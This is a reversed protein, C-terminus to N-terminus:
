LAGTLSMLLLLHVTLLYALFLYRSRARGTLLRSFYLSRGRLWRRCAVAGGKVQRALLPRSLAAWDEELDMEISVDRLGDRSGLSQADEMLRLREELTERRTREETLNQELELLREATESDNSREQPAGPAEEAFVAGQLGDVQTQVRDELWHCRDEADRLSQSVLRLRAAAGGKEEEAQQVKLGLRQLQQDRQQIEHRCRRLDGHLRTREAAGPGELLADTEEEESRLATAGQHGLGPAGSPKQRTEAGGGRGTSEGTERRAAALEGVLRERDSQLSAMAGCFAALQTALADRELALREGDGEKAALEGSLEGLLRSLEAPAADGSRSAALTRALVDREKAAAALDAAADRRGREAASLAARAARLENDYGSRLVKFDEILRDRDDQLAAMAGCMSEGRARAGSSEAAAAAAAERLDAMVKGEAAREQRLTAADAELRSVQARLAGSAEGEKGLEELGVGRQRRLKLGEHGTQAETVRVESALRERDSQLSAMASKLAEREQASRGAQTRLSRLVDELGRREGDAKERQDRRDAQLQELYGSTQGDRCSLLSSIDADKGRLLAKLQLAVGEQEARDNLSRLRLLRADAAASAEEAQRLALQTRSAAGEREALLRTLASKDRELRQALAGLERLRVASLEANGASLLFLQGQQAAAGTRELAGAERDRLRPDELLRQLVPGIQLEQADSRRREELGGLQQEGIAASCQPIDHDEAKNGEQWADLALQEPEAEVRRTREAAQQLLEKHALLEAEGEEESSRKLERESHQRGEEELDLILEQYRICNRQLHSVEQQKERLLEQLEKKASKSADSGRQVTKLKEELERVLQLREAEQERRVRAGAERSAALQSSLQTNHAQLAAASASLEHIRESSRRIVSELHEKEVKAKDSAERADQLEEQLLCEDDESVRLTEKLGVGEVVEQLGELEEDKRGLQLEHDNHMTELREKQFLGELETTHAHSRATPSSSPQMHTSHTDSRRREEELAPRAEELEGALRNHQTERESEAEWRQDGDSPKLKEQLETLEKRTKRNEEELEEVKQRKEKSFKHMREKIRGSEDEAERRAEESLQRMKDMESSVNESRSSSGRTGAEARRAGGELHVARGGPVARREGAGREAAGAGAGVGGSRPERSRQHRTADGATRSRRQPHRKGEPAGEQVGASGSAEQDAPRSRIEEERRCEAAGSCVGAGGDRVSSGSLAALRRGEKLKARFSEACPLGGNAETLEAGPGGTFRLSEERERRLAELQTQAESGRRQAEELEETLLRKDDSVESAKQSALAQLEGRVQDSREMLLRSLEQKEKQTKLAAVQIAEEREELDAHADELLSEALQLEATLADARREAVALAEDRQEALRRLAALEDGDSLARGRLEELERVKQDLQQSWKKEKEQAKKLTEKRALLAAQAKKQIKTQALENGLAARGESDEKRAEMEKEHEEARRLWQSRDRELAEERAAAGAQLLEVLSSKEALTRVAESLRVEKEACAAQSTQLREELREGKTQLLLIEGEKDLLNRQLLAAADAAAQARSTVGQLREQLLSVQGHAHASEERHHQHQQIKKEEALDRELEEKRDSLRLAESEKAEARSLREELRRTSADHDRETSELLSAREEGLKMRESSASEILQGIATDRDQGSLAEEVRDMQEDKARSHEAAGDLRTQLLQATDKWLAAQQAEEEGHLRAAGGQVEERPADLEARHSEQLRKIADQLSAPSGESEEDAGSKRATLEQLEHEAAKLARRLRGNDDDKKQVSALLRQLQTRSAAAEKASLQDSAAAPQEPLRGLDGKLASVKGDKSKMDREVSRLQEALREKDQNERELVLLREVKEANERLRCGEEDRASVKAQLSEEESRREMQVRPEERLRRQTGVQEQLLAYDHAAAALRGRHEEQEASLRQNQRELKQMDSGLRAAHEAQCTYRRNIALLAVERQELNETLANMKAVVHLHQAKLRELEATLPAADAKEKSLSANLHRTRELEQRILASENRLTETAIAAAQREEGAADLSRRLGSAEDSTQLLQKRLLQLQELDAAYKEQLDASASRTEEASTKLNGSEAALLRVRSQLRSVSEASQELRTELLSAEDARRQVDQLSKWQDLLAAEKDELVKKLGEAEASLETLAEQLRAAHERSAESEAEKARLSSRLDEAASSSRRLDELRRREAEELTRRLASSESSLGDVRGRLERLQTATAAAGAIDHARQELQQERESIKGTLQQILREQRTLSEESGRAASNLGERESLATQLKADADGVAAQLREVERRAGSAETLARQLESESRANRETLARVNQHSADLEAKRRDESQTLKQVAVKLGTAEVEAGSLEDRQRQVEGTSDRLARERQQAEKGLAEVEERHVGATDQLQLLQSRREELAMNLGGVKEDRERLVAALSACEGTKELLAASTAREGERLIRRSEDGASALAEKERLLGDIVKRNESTQIEQLSSRQASLEALARRSREGSETLVGIKRGCSANQELAGDLQGRLDAQVRAQLALEAERSECAARLQHNQETLARVHVSRVEAEAELKRGTEEATGVREGLAEAAADAEEKYEQRHRRADELAAELQSREEARSAAANEMLAAESRLRRSGDREEALAAETEKLASKLGGEQERLLSLQNQQNQQAEIQSRRDRQLREVEEEREGLSRGLEGCEATKALSSRDLARNLDEIAAGSRSLQTELSSAEEQLSDRELTVGAVDLQLREKEETLVDARRELRRNLELAASIEGALEEGSRLEETLQKEETKWSKLESVLQGSLKEPTEITEAKERIEERVREESRTQEELQESLTKVQRGSEELRALLEKQEDKGTKMERAHTQERESLQLRLRESGGDDESRRREGLSAARAESESLRTRHSALQERLERVATQEEQSRETLLQLAAEADTLRETLAQRESTQSGGVSAAERQAESLATEVRVLSEDKLELERKLAALREAQAAANGSLTQLEEEKELLADKLRDMERECGQLDHILQAREDLHASNLKDLEENTQDLETQLSEVAVEQKQTKEKLASLKQTLDAVETQLESRRKESSGCRKSVDELAHEAQLLKESADRCRLEREGLAERLGDALQLEESTKALANEKEVLSSELCGQTSSLGKLQETLGAVLLQQNEADRSQQLRLGSVQAQLRESENQSDWFPQEDEDVDVDFTVQLAEVRAQLQQRAELDQCREELSLIQEQLQNRELELEEVVSRLGETDPSSFEPWWGGMNEGEMPTTTESPPRPDQFSSRGDFGFDEQLSRQAEEAPGGARGPGRARPLEEELEQQRSALAPDSCGPFFWDDEILEEREEEMHSMRLAMAAREEKARDRAGAAEAVMEQWELVQSQAEDASGSESAQSATRKTFQELDAHLTRQQEEYVVLKAELMDNKAKLEEYREAKWLNEEREEELATIHGRMATADPPAGGAQSKKLEEELQRIRSKSWAKMKMFKAESREAEETKQKSRAELEAMRQLSDEPIAGGGSSRRQEELQGLLDQQARDMQVRHQETVRQVEAQQKEMLDRLQARMVHKEAEMKSALSEREVHLRRLREVLDQIQQDRGDVEGQLVDIVQTKGMLVEEKEHLKQKLAKLLQELDASADSKAALKFLEQEHMQGVEVLQQEKQLLIDKFTQINQKYMSEKQLFHEQELALLEKLSGAQEQLLSYREEEEGVKRTLSQVLLQLEQLAAGDEQQQPAPSAPQDGALATQLHVIYAEKEALKRDREALMADMEEGRQRQSEAEKRKEELEEGRRALQQDLDELKKKLLVVKGRSAHDAADSSGKRGHTPAGGGQQQKLEELQSTLSTVKAKNQLRLKSLRSECAEKEVRLRADQAHLAADKERILEKLQALLLEAHALREAMEEVGVAEPVVDGGGPAGGLPPGPGTSGPEGEEGSLWKLM